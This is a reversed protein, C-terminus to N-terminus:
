VLPSEALMRRFVPTLLDWARAGDIIKEGDATTASKLKERARVFQEWMGAARLQRELATKQQRRGRPAKVTM